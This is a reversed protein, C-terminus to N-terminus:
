PRVQMPPIAAGVRAKEAEIRRSLRTALRPVHALSLLQAHILGLWGARFLAEVAAAPLARLKEEDILRFGSLTSAHGHLEYRIQRDVLLGMEDLQAAFRRAQALDQRLRQLEAQQGVLWESASGDETFLPEGTTESLGEHVEDICVTLREAGEEGALLLPYRRVFAPPQGAGLWDGAAEDVFLNESNRLGLLAALGAGEASSAFVCPYDLAALALEGLGLPVANVARAYAYPEAAPAVRLRRHRQRDLPAPKAYLLLTKAIMM